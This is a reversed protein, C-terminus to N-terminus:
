DVINIYVASGLKLLLNAAVPRVLLHINQYVTIISLFM